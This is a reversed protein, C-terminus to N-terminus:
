VQTNEHIDLLKLFVDVIKPDFHRGAEDLIYKRAQSPTHAVRYPRDSTLADYVDVVAFLRASFPIQEGSLGFPYGSGDWKEHHYQLIDLAPALYQIPRLLDAAITVHQRMIKWEAPDLPGPKLLISDPIAMKGIDHLMAGRRIHAVQQEILGFAEALRVTMETVRRTHGQTEFDRLELARSWGEITADYAATLVSNTREYHDFILASEIAIATQVALANMFDLWDRNPTLPSRHFLELVGLARGKVILPIAFYDTFGEQAFSPARLYDTQRSSLNAIRVIQRTLVARGAYGDGLKLATQEFINAHFGNGAAYKLAMSQTDLLLICVADVNLQTKVQSILMTLILNMDMNSTIAMDITRLATLRDLQRRIALEHEKRASIDRIFVSILGESFLVLRTEFWCPQPRFPLFFDFSAQGDTHPLNAVADKFKAVVEAPFISWLTHGLHGEKSPIFMSNGADNYGLIVGNKNLIFLPDPFAQFIAQLREDADSLSPVRDGCLVYSSAPRPLGRIAADGHRRTM